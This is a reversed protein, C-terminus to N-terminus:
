TRIYVLMANINYWPHKTEQFFPTAFTVIAFHQFHFSGFVFDLMWRKGIHLWKKELKKKTSDLSLFKFTAFLAFCLNKPSFHIQKLTCWFQMEM